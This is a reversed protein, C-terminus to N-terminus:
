EISLCDQGKIGKGGYEKKLRGTLTLLIDDEIGLGLTMIVEQPDFFLVIDTIRDGALTHCSCPEEGFPTTADRFMSRVPTVKAGTADKGLMFTGTDVQSVDFDPTGSLAIALLKRSLVSLRNPCTGPMIDIPVQLENNLRILEWGGEPLDDDMDTLLNMPNAMGLYLAEDSLMTRIGYSTYNGVGAVSEPVAPIYSSQIRFLDAGYFNEPLNLLEDPISGITLDLFASMQEGVFYSWDMTGIFLQHRYVSMTWTYNNFFNGFGSLGWLPDGMKNPLIEWHGPPMYVPLCPMGYVLQLDPKRSDFNRGRFISIPRYTGLVAALIDRENDPMGYMIFHALASTFPVHMTGWYLYGDFSALAGGGYTAATVFDPEYDQAQWVKTWSDADDSTLGQAPIPPSMYLGATTIEEGELMNGPWTTVFIRGEHEALEAGEGDSLNGVISFRFLANLDPKGSPLYTLEGTWRLVSGKSSGSVNRVATYLVDNVVLWKRINTYTFLTKSGLYTGSDSLFASLTISGQNSPGATGPGAMIVLDGISGASRIGTMLLFAPDRIPTKETLTKQATNYVYIHPPRWDGASPPVFPYNQSYQSSGFECVWSDTELPNLPITPDMAAPGYAGIALCHVNPATGIWINSGVKALGWVYAQNVKPKGESCPPGTPYPNGIGNFCEDPKAKALLERNLTAFPENPPLQILPNGPKPSPSTKTKNGDPMPPAAPMGPMAPTAHTAQTGPAAPTPRTSSVAPESAPGPSTKGYADLWFQELMKKTDSSPSPPPSTKKTGDAGARATLGLIILLIVIKIGRTFSIGGIFRGQVKVIRKKCQM